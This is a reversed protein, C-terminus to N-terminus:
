SRSAVASRTSTRASVTSGPWINRSSARSCWSRTSPRPTSTRRSRPSRGPVTSSSSTSVPGSLRPRLRHGGRGLLGHHGVVAHQPDRPRLGPAAARRPGGPAAVTPLAAPPPGREHGTGGCSPPEPLATMDRGGQRGEALVVGGPHDDRAPRGVPSGLPHLTKPRLHEEPPPAFRCRILSHGPTGTGGGLAGASRARAHAGSSRM